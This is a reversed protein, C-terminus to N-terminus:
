KKLYKKLREQAKDFQTFAKKIYNEDADSMEVETGKDSLKYGVGGVYHSEIKVKVTKVEKTKTM